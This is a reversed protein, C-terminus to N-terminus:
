VVKEYELDMFEIKIMVFIFFDSFKLFEVLDERRRLIIGIRDFDIFLIRQREKLIGQLVRELGYYQDRVLVVLNFVVIGDDKGLKGRGSKRKELSFMLVMELDNLDFIVEVEMFQVIQIQVEFFLEELRLEEIRGDFNDDYSGLLQFNYRFLFLKKQFQVYFRIMEVLQKREKRLRLFNVMKLLVEINLKEKFKKFSVFSIEERFGLKRIEVSDLKILIEKRVFDKGSKELVLKNISSSMDKKGFSRELGLSSQFKEIENVSQVSKEISQRIKEIEKNFQSLNISKGYSFEKEINEKVSFVDLLKM